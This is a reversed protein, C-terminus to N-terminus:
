RATLRSLQMYISASVKSNRPLTLYIPHQAPPLPSHCPAPDRRRRYWFGSLLGWSATWKAEPRTKLRKILEASSTILGLCFAALLFNYFPFTLYQNIKV